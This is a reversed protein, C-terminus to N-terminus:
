VCVGGRGCVCVRVYERESGTCLSAGPTPAKNTTKQQTHKKNTGTPLKRAPQPQVNAVVPAPVAVHQLSLM